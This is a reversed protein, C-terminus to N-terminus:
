EDLYEKEILRVLLELNTKHYLKALRKMLVFNCSAFEDEDMRKDIFLLEKLTKISHVVRWKYLSDCIAKEKSAMRVIYEGEGILCLGESFASAPIDSYEYRGFVNIYTKNKRVNLTASTIAMTREPILGYYSLAFDFSLYSPSLIPAALLYPNVNRDTEYLGRNLRFIVGQDADRRIKDLPNTYDAYKQKLMSVTVIM